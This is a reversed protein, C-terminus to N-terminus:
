PLPAGPSLFPHNLIEADTPRKKAEGQLCWRILHMAWRRVAEAACAKGSAIDDAFAGGLEDDGIGRWLCLRMLDTDVDVLADNAIDQRFLSRGVCLEFAQM